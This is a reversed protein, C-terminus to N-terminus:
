DKIQLDQKLRRAKMKLVIKATAVPFLYILLNFLRQKFNVKSHLFVSLGDKKIERKSEKYRNIYEMKKKAGIIYMLLNFHNKWIHWNEARAVLNSSVNLQEKVFISHELANIGDQVMRVTTGSNSNNKRYGYVKRHGYAIKNSFKAGMSSFYLGEGFWSIVFLIGNTKILSTKYMKNWAGVPTKVYFIECLAEESSLVRINDHKNQKRNSTTMLCDSMAMDCDNKEILEVFYQLYDPEFWDDGDLFTLYFGSVVKLGENRASSCGGNEKHIVIIRKDKKAYEDCIKGSSDPSGDDVLILEFNDYTQNLVSEILKPLFPESKYIPVIISVKKNM